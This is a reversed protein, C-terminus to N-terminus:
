KMLLMKKTEVFSGARLKYFYVGSPLNEANLEVKHYGKDQEENVLIAIEEGLANLLTLKANGKEQLVYSITTAPNFPNPYNQELTFKNLVRVEVEIENSYEFTGSYDIQKLRYIYKGPDVLKDVYSYQNPSTTTGNGKVSGITAFNNDAFKRQVEFGQNNLETATSWSLTVEKGNAAATFAILEVPVVGEWDWGIIKAYIDWGKSRRNDAWSVVIQNNNAVVVPLREGLNPGDAVILYNSGNANGNAFYRQGIINPNNIGVFRLEEWVIIFNGQSDMSISPFYQATNDADDNVKTNIGQAIGSSNYRQYYIDSNGNRRDEWAIVFNAKSDM